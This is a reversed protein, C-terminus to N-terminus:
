FSSEDFLSKVFARPEFPAIDDPTEGTCLWRIPIQLEREIAIAIGGKATGDLKTLVLGTLPIFRNFTRAQDIGNQGTTADLVLWIEHPSGPIAKDCSRKIKDLEQMLATKSQLRGATDIIAIDAQRAKAATATDFAVAAPDSRPAGKVIPVKLREAFTDLQEIAAARFTDAAGLLVKKGEESFAKALKATTTTKGSGNVGCMLLVSPRRSFNLSRDSVFYSCIEEQVKEELDAGRVGEAYLCRVKETLETATKVGLDAEFFLQELEELVSADINESLLSRFKASFFSRTKQLAKQLKGKLYDFVM